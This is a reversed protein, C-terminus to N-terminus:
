GDKVTIEDKIKDFKGEGIGSVDMIEEIEAFPGNEERYNIIKQATSPGIGPLTQLADLSATNINIPGGTSEPLGGQGSNAAAQNSLPLSVIPPTPVATEVNSPVYVQSGDQLPLALNVVEAHADNGFGGAAVIAAEVRSEYALEYTGPNAVAGIVFVLIPSPTATPEPLATPPAPTIYIPAPQIRNFLSWFGTSSAAGALLFILYTLWYQRELKM